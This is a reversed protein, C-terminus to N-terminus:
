QRCCSHQHVHPGRRQHEQHRPSDDEGGGQQSEGPADGRQHVALRLWSRRRPVRCRVLAADISGACGRARVRSDPQHFGRRGVQGDGQDLVGVEGDRVAGAVHQRPCIVPEEDGVGAEQRAEHEAHVAALEFRQGRASALVVAGAGEVQGARPQGAQRRRRHRDEAIPAEGGSELLADPDDAIRALRDLDLDAHLEVRVERVDELDTAAAPQLPGDGYMPPSPRYPEYVLLLSVTARRRDADVARRGVDVASQGEAGGELVAPRPVQVQPDIGLDRM